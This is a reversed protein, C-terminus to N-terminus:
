KVNVYMLPFANDARQVIDISAKSAWVVTQQHLPIYAFEDRMTKLVDQMMATRKAQDTEVLIKDSLEDVKPNCWGGVNFLGKTQGEKRCYALNQIMNHADYTAPTWGLLFFSTEFKPALIKAFYLSKTQAKLNVKIGIQSLMTAAAVCLKEDNVYRDNPCDLGVEFGNPYGAAALLEKAKKPDYSPRQDLSKDYGKIMTAVMLATPASEGRMVKTKLAESDIARYFAERVRVDKFPNKGKVSSDLLEPRLSDFGLYVIRTEPTILVKLGQTKAIRDQDQPPVNYIMDLDGALLASVRTAPNKVVSFQVDTLNHKAKDWWNPNPGLTTKVEVERTKLIFPGTGNANRTAFSEEKKTLDAPKTTNNAESWEKDMIYWNALEDVLIPNPVSTEMEVTFDDVKRIEKVSSFYSKINSGDARARNYSFVVDDANFANGNHFKVGQRLKFRWLTPSPNSWESALAAELKLNGDRRVLPEYINGTFSLLFTENLVYPDLSSTDGDNAWKFTKAAAPMALALALASAALISTLRMTM